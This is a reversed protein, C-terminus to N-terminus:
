RESNRLLESITQCLHAGENPHVWLLRIKKLFQIFTKISFQPLEDMLYWNILM